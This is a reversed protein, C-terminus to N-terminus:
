LISAPLTAAHQSLRVPRTIRRRCKACGLGIGLVGHGVDVVCFEIAAVCVGPM